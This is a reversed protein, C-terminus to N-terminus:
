SQQHVSDHQKTKQQGDSLSSLSVKIRNPSSVAILIKKHLRDVSLVNISARKQWLGNGALETVRGNSINVIVM